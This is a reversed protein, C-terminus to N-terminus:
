ALPNTHEYRWPNLPPLTLTQRQFGQEDGGVLNGQPSLEQINSSAGPYQKQYQNDALSALMNFAPSTARAASASTSPLMAPSTKPATPSLSPKHNHHYGSSTTATTTGSSQAQYHYSAYVTDHPEALSPSQPSRRARRLDNEVDEDSLCRPQLWYRPFLINITSPREPPMWHSLHRNDLSSQVRQSFFEQELANIKQQVQQMMSRRITLKDLYYQDYSMKWQSVFANKVDEVALDRRRQVSHGKDTKKAEIDMADRQARKAEKAEKSLRQTSNRTERDTDDRGPAKNNNSSNSGSEVRKKNYGSPKGKRRRKRPEAPESSSETSQSRTAVRTSPEPSTSPTERTLDKTSTPSGSQLSRSARRTLVRNMAPDELKSAQIEVIAKAQSM